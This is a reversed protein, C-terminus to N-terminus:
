KKERALKKYYSRSAETKRDMWDTLKDAELEHIPAVLEIAAKRSMRGKADRIKSLKHASADQARVAKTDMEVKFGRWKTRLEKTSLEGILKLEGSMLRRVNREAHAYQAAASRFLKGKGKILKCSEFVDALMARMTPTLPLDSRFLKALPKLDSTEYAHRADHQWFALELPENTPSRRALILEHLQPKGDRRRVARKM